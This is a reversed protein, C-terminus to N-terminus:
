EYSRSKQPHDLVSTWLKYNFVKLQIQFEINKPKMKNYGDEGLLTVCSALSPPNEGISFRQQPQLSFCIEFVLAFCRQTICIDLGEKYFLMFLIQLKPTVYFVKLKNNFNLTQHLEICTDFMPPPNFLIKIWASHM